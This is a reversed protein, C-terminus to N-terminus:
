VIQLFSANLKKPYGLSQLNQPDLPLAVTDLGEEKKFGEDLFQRMMGASLFKDDKFFVHKGEIRVARIKKM